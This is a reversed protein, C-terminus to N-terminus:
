SARRFTDGTTWTNYKCEVLVGGADESGWDFRHGGPQTRFQAQLEIRLHDELANRVLEAFENGIRTHDENAM